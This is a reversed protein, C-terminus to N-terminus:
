NGFQEKRHKRWNRIRDQLVNKPVQATMSDHSSEQCEDIHLSEAHEFMESTSSYEALWARRIMSDMGNHSTHIPPLILTGDDKIALEPKSGTEMYFILSAMAFRDTADSITEMPGNVLM